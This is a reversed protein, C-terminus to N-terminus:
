RLRPFHVGALFYHTVLAIQIVCTEPIAQTCCKLFPYWLYWGLALHRGVDEDNSM